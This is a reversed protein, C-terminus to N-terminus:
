SAPMSSVGVKAPRLLRDHLMFGAGDGPHHRRRRHQSPPRSCPRTCSPTSSRGLEPRMVTIGHKGFVNGLERLTLEVGEM